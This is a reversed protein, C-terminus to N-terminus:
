SNLTNSINLVTTAYESVEGRSVKAYAYSPGGNYAMLVWETSNGTDFLEDLFDIGVCVNEFPNLLNTCGLEDMRGQHWQPQIQMLGYSYGQDGVASSEYKGGTEYEIVAIVLAPDIDREDCLKFIYDQLEHSLPVDYYKVTPETIVPEIIQEVVVEEEVSIDISEEEVIEEIVPAEEVTESETSVTDNVDSIDIVDVVESTDTTVSVAVTEVPLIRIALGVIACVFIGVFMGSIVCSLKIPDISRVKSILIQMLKKM